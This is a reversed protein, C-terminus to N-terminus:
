SVCVFVSFTCIVFCDRWIYWVQSQNDLSLSSVFYAAPLRDLLSCVHAGSLRLGGQM